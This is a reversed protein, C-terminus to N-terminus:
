FLTVRLLLLRREEPLMAAHRILILPMAYRMHRLQCIARLTFAILLLPTFCTHFHRIHRQRLLILSIAAAVVIDSRTAADRPQEHCFLM